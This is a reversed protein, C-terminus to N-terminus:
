WGLAPSAQGGRRVRPQPPCAQTAGLGAATAAAAEQELDLIAVTAGEDAFRKATAAGIGRAAGTVVVVRDAYRSM